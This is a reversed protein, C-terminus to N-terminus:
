QREKEMGAARDLDQQTLLLLSRVSGIASEHAGLLEDVTVMVGDCAGKRKELLTERRRELAAIAEEYCRIKEQLVSIRDSEPMSDDARPKEPAFGAHTV